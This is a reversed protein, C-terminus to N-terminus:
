EKTLKIYDLIVKINDMKSINPFDELYYTKGSKICLSENSKVVDKKKIINMNRLVTTSIINGYTEELDQTAYVKELADILRRHHFLEYILRAYPVNNKNHKQSEKIADCLHNFIYSVLNVRM